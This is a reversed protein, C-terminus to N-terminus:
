SSYNKVQYLDLTVNNRNTDSDDACSNRFVMIDPGAANNESSQVIVYVCSTNAKKMNMYEEHIAKKGEEIEDESIGKKKRKNNPFQM